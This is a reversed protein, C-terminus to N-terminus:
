EVLETTDQRWEQNQRCPMLVGGMWIGSSPIWIEACGNPTEYLPELLMRESLWAMPM